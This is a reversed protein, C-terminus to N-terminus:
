KLGNSNVAGCTKRIEGVSKVGVGGMARMAQGFEKQFRGESKLSTVSRKTRADEFLTQDSTFLGKRETLTNFYKADFEGPTFTDMFVQTDTNEDSNQPCQTKLSEAYTSDISPDTFYSSNFNYLRGVIKDCHGVGVTHSGSLVVMERTSLGRRVFASILQTASDTPKPLNAEATAANSVRGDKRGGQVEWTSGNLKVTGDRAAYQVIDACSVVGPCIEEVAAKAADIVEYGKLNANILASRETDSGELLISGDCGEVFCDHYALRILGAAAALDKDLEADIVKKMVSEADKCSTSYYNDKLQGYSYSCNCLEGSFLLISVLLVFGIKTM